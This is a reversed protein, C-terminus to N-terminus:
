QTNPTYNNEHIWGKPILPRHFYSLTGEPWQQIHEHLLVGSPLRLSPAIEHLPICVFDRMELGVHPITLTPTDICAEGYLLIDLDLPRPGWHITRSRDRGQVAEITQLRDLLAHPSLTTTIAVVANLFDPQEVPGMPASQYISSGYLWTMESQQALADVAAQLQALPRGQNAGLAIYCRIM